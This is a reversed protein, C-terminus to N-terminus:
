GSGQRRAAAGQVSHLWRLCVGGLSPYREILTVDLGLDAARFAATYGGPGSGIVVLQASHTADDAPKPAAAPAPAEQTSEGEESPANSALAADKEAEDMVITSDFAPEADTNVTLVVDGQNVTDGVSVRIEAVTGAETAPVDMAAKDTELTIVPDEVALTDGVKVLVEIIEVDSFDGLDPIKLESVAM